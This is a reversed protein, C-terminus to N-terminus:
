QNTEGMHRLIAAVQLRADAIGTDTTIVYDSKKRKQADPLQKALIQTFKEVSMGDRALVRARQVEAPASVLVVFDVKLKTGGEFYLPIDYLVIKTGQNKQRITWEARKQAVLPHVISELVAFRKPQEALRKALLSRDVEGAIVATPFAAQIPAVAEGGVAYLAHVCADADFGPIGADAFLKATTSKGMGISGTLVIEIM